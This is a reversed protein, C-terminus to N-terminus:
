DDGFDTEALTMDDSLAENQWGEDNLRVAKVEFTALSVMFVAAFAIKM